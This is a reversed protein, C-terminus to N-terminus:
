NVNLFGRGFVRVNSSPIFTTNIPNATLQDPLKYLRALASGRLYVRATAQSSSVCVYFSSLREALNSASPNFIAPIRQAEGNGGVGLDPNTCSPQTAISSNVTISVPIYPSNSLNGDIYEVLTPFNTADLTPYTAGVAKRWANMRTTLNGGGSLSFPSYGATPLVYYLTPDVTTAVDPRTSGAPCDTRVLESCNVSDAGTAAPTKGGAIGARLEWRKIKAPNPPNASPTSDMVLYYAVLSYVFQSSGFCLNDATGVAYPLCKVKRSSGDFLKVTEEPDYFHRKWFALVPTGNTVSPIQSKLGPLTATGDGDLGTADYIYVAERLDNVIYNLAAQIEEQSTAKAEERKNTELVGVLFTLLTSVIITAMVMSVLIELLTFGTSRKRKSPQKRFFHQLLKSKM